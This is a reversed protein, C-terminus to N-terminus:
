SHLPQPNLEWPVCMSVIFTYGSHVTLRKPYFRRSFAYISEVIFFLSEEIYLLVIKSINRFILEWLSTNVPVNNYISSYNEQFGDMNKWYESLANQHKWLVVKKQIYIYVCMFVLFYASEAFWSIKNTFDAYKKTNIHTYIYIYICFNNLM